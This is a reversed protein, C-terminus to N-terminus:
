RRYKRKGALAAAADFVDFYRGSLKLRTTLGSDTGYIPIRRIEFRDHGGWKVSLAADLGADSIARKADPSHWGYPLALYRAHIGHDALLALSTTVDALVEAYSLKNLPLHGHGHSQISIGAHALETIREWSMITEPVENWPVLRQLLTPSERWGNDAGVWKTPVFVTTQALLGLRELVPFALDSFSGLADDFTVTFSGPRASGDGFPGTALAEQLTIASFGRERMGALQREFANARMVYRSHASADLHHYTLILPWDLSM